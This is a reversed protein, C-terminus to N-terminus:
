SKNLGEAVRAAGAEDGKRIENMLAITDQLLAVKRRFAEFLNEQAIQSGPEARLATRSDDIAADIVALNEKLTAMLVPDLPSDSATAVQELGKIANEYHGAALQLESEINRVIEDPSPPAQGGASRGSGSEPHWTRTMM